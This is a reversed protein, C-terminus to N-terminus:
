KSKNISATKSLEKGFYAKNDTMEVTKATDNQWDPNHELWKTGLTNIFIAGLPATICIALVATTLIAQGFEEWETIGKAKADALVLGGIAAQVTAKPIWAFAMFAREKNNFKKEFAAGFTGFWRATVGLFIVLLGQGIQSSDIKTFIVAAGVTGFLFPQCVAWFHHFEVEPKNEGWVQFCMYGFFIIGIYKAEHFESLHALIPTFVCVALLLFFKIWITKKPDFYNFVKMTYGLTLGLVLGTLIQFVNKLVNMLLNTEEGEEAGSLFRLGQDVVGTETVEEDTPYIGEAKM